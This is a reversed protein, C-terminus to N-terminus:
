VSNGVTTIHIRNCINFWGQIHGGTRTNKTISIHAPSLIHLSHYLCTSHSIYTIVPVHPVFARYLSFHLHYYRKPNATVLHWCVRVHCATLTMEKENLIFRKKIFWRITVHPFHRNLILHLYYFLTLLSM